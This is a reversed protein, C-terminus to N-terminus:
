NPECPVHRDPPAWLSTLHIGPPRGRRKPQPAIPERQADMMALMAQKDALDTREEPSLADKRRLMATVSAMVRAKEVQSLMQVVPAPTATPKRSRPAPLDAPIPSQAASARQREARVADQWRRLSATLIASVLEAEPSPGAVAPRGWSWGLAMQQPQPQVAVSPRAPEVVAADDEWRRALVADVADLVGCVFDGVPAPLATGADLGLVLAGVGQVEGLAERAAALVGRVTERDERDPLAFVRDHAAALVARLRDGISM